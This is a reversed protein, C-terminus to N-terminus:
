KLKGMLSKARRIWVRDRKRQYMKANASAFSFNSEHPPPTLNDGHFRQVSDRQVRIDHAPSGANAPQADRRSRDRTQDGGAVRVRLNQLQIRIEFRLIDRLSAKDFGIWRVLISNHLFLENKLDLPIIVHQYCGAVLRFHRRLARVEIFQNRHNAIQNLAPKIAIVFAQLPRNAKM